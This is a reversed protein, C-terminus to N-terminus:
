RNRTNYSTLSDQGRSLHLYRAAKFQVLVSIRVATASSTSNINAVGSKTNKGKRVSDRIKLSLRCPAGGKWRRWYRAHAKQVSRLWDIFPSFLAMSLVESSVDGTLDFIGSAPPFLLLCRTFEPPTFTVRLVGIHCGPPSSTYGSQKDIESATVLATFILDSLRQPTNFLNTSYPHLLTFGASLFRCFQLETCHIVVYLLLTIRLYDPIYNTFRWGNILCIIV